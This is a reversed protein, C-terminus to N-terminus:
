SRDALPIWSRRKHEIVVSEMTGLVAHVGEDASPSAFLSAASERLARTSVKGNGEHPLRSLYVVSEPVKFAPLRSRCHDLVCPPRQSDTMAVFAVIAEGLIEHAAGVVAVEAVDPLEAIVDEVEKAGIRSGGSKIIQRERAVLYIFGDHDVRALDGTHLRGDRFYRATEAPDNWYGGTVNDGVAVIEGVEDSGWTVPQGDQRLVELRTSSLGRGISGVKDALRDPPLYSLRATAETQGYMVYLSVEPKASQLERICATPLHGGAQQLWRLSPFRTHKFRSRRLLIQYTSPVGAFGTCQQEDMELLVREPFMFENNIVVSAGAALHTHLLSLGYCYYFPLVVMVRDRSTLGLYSIIDATNCAINRHSVMVGHPRGVSGSTFMIAAIDGDDMAAVPVESGSERADLDDETLLTGTFTELWRRAGAARQKSVLVANAGTNELMQLLQRPSADTPLPVAVMGVQIIGLYSRVFFSGNDALVAIRDQRRCGCIVLARALHDVSRRLEAYTLEHGGARVAPASPAGHRLLDVAVNM